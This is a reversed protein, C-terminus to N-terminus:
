QLLAGIRFLSAFPSYQLFYFASVIAAASCTSMVRLPGSASELFVGVIICTAWLWMCYLRPIPWGFIFTLLLLFLGPMFCGFTIIAARDSKNPRRKILYFLGMLSLLLLLHLYVYGSLNLWETVSSLYFDEAKGPQGLFMFYAIRLLMRALGPAHSEWLHPGDEQFFEGIMEGVQNRLVYGALAVSAGGVLLAARALRRSRLFYYGMVSCALIAFAYSRFYCLVGATIVICAGRVAFPKLECTGLYVLSIILAAIINDRLLHTAGILYGPYFNYAMVAGLAAAPRLFRCALAYLLYFAAVSFNLKLLVLSVVDGGFPLMLLANLLNYANYPGYTGYSSVKGSLWLERGGPSGLIAALRQAEYYYESIDYYEHKAGIAGYLMGDYYGLAIANYYQFYTLLIFLGTTMAGAWCCGKPLKLLSGFLSGLFLLEVVLLAQQVGGETLAASGFAAAWGLILLIPRIM